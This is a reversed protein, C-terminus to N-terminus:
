NLNNDFTIKISSTLDNFGFKSLRDERWFTQNVSVESFTLSRGTWDDNDYFTLNAHQYQGERLRINCPIIPESKETTVWMQFSSIENNMHYNDLFDHPDPDSPITSPYTPPTKTILTGGSISLPPPTIDITSVVEWECFPGGEKRGKAHKWVRLKYGHIYLPYDDSKRTTSSMKLKWKRCSNMEEFSNYFDFSEDENVFIAIDEKKKLNEFLNAIQEDLIVAKDDTFLVKSEYIDGKYSFRLTGISDTESNESTSMTCPANGASFHYYTEDTQIDENYDEQSCSFLGLICTATISVLLSKNLKYM